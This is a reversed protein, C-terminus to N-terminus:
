TISVAVGDIKLECVYAVPPRDPGELDDLRRELRAGWAALEDADMANDLSMMPVTHRVPAFATSPAGGVQVTPSDPTALAPYMAELENLQRVLADFDADPIEPADLEHYLRSHHRITDRLADVEAVVEPPPTDAALDPTDAPTDAPSDAM